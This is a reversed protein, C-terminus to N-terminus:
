GLISGIAKSLIDFPIKSSIEVLFMHETLCQRCPKPVVLVVHSGRGRTVGLRLSFDVLVLVESPRFDVSRGCVGADKGV